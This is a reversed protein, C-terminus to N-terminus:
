KELKQILILINGYKQGYNSFSYVVEGNPGDDLDTANVQIITTGIATDEQLQVSYSEKTFVPHNDNVEGVEIKIKMEGSKPPKGGYERDSTLYPNM